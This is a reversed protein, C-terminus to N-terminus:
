KKTKLSRIKSIVSDLPLNKGVIIKDKDILFNAPLIQVNYLMSVGNNRGLSDIAQYWELNKGNTVQEWDSQNADLVITLIALEKKDIEKRLRLLSDNEQKCSECWSALFNLLLYQNNFTSLRLTDRNKMEIIQFDPAGAGVSTKLIADNIASFKLYLDDKQAAGTILNLFEQNRLPADADFLYDQFLVLSAISAPNDKIFISAENQLQNDINTIKAFYENKSVDPIISDVMELAEMKYLLDRKETLLTRQAEKFQALKNNVEGGKAILLEPYMVNGNLEIIDGNQVWLTTWVTGEEFYLIVPILSDASNKYEFRGRSGKSSGAIITDIHMEGPLTDPVVIFISYNNLGTIKGKVVYNTSSEQRCSLLICCFLTISFFLKIKM